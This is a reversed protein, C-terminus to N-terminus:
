GLECNETASLSSSCMVVWRVEHLRVYLWGSHNMDTSCITLTM